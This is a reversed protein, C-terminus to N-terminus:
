DWANSALAQFMNFGNINKEIFYIGQENRTNRGKLATEKDFYFCGEGKIFVHELTEFKNARYGEINKRSDSMKSEM